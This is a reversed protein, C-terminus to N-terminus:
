LFYKWEWGTTRKDPPIGLIEQAKRVKKLAGHVQRKGEKNWFEIGLPYPSRCYNSKGIREKTSFAVDGITQHYERIAQEVILELHSKEETSLERVTEITDM